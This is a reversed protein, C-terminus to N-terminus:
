PNLSPRVKVARKGKSQTKASKDRQRTAVQHPQSMAALEAEALHWHEIDRGFPCGEKQWIYYAAVKLWTEPVSQTKGSQSRISKKEM